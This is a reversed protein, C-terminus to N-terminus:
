STWTVKDKMLIDVERGEFDMINVNGENGEISPDSIIIIDAFNAKGIEGGEPLTCKTFGKKELFIIWCKKNWTTFCM